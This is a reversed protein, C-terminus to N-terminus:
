MVYPIKLIDEAKELTKVSEQHEGCGHVVAVRRCAFTEVEEIM